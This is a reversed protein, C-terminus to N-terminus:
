NKKFIIKYFFKLEKRTIGKMLIITSSYIIVGLLITFILMFLSIINFLYIIIAMVTSAIISKIIFKFNMNFKFQTYARFIMILFIGSYTLFTTFAAGYMGFFPIFIFNLIINTLAGFGYIKSILKTQKKSTLIYMFVEASKYLLLGIAILPFLLYGSLFESTSIIQILPKALIILGVATPIALLLFYKMSYSLYTKAEAFRKNDWARSIAPYLILGIPGMFLFMVKSISYVLSYIGIEITGKFFGLIYIDSSHLVWSFLALPVIPLSYYLYKKLLSFKPKKLKIKFKVFLAGAGFVVLKALLSGVVAGGLGFGNLVLYFVFSLEGISQLALLFSYTYIKRLSNFFNVIIVNLTTILVMISALKIFFSTTIDKFIYIAIIDSIFFLLVSFLFGTISSTLLISSLGRQIEKKNVKAFFRIIASGLALSAILSILEVTLLISCWIGYNGAGLTKTLLPLLIIQQLSIFVTVLGLLLVDKTFKKYQEM